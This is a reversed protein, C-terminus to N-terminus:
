ANKRRKLSDKQKTALAATVDKATVRYPECASVALGYNADGTGSPMDSETLRPFGNAVRFFNVTRVVYRCEAYRSSHADLYGTELLEDEFREQGSADNVLKERITTVLTPLSEGNERLDLTTVNLFLVSLTSDDLQRESSIRVVQPQKALTTKVEVAGSPM